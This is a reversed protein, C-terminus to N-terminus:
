TGLYRSLAEALPYDLPPMALSVLAEPPYWAFKEADHAQPVGEWRRCAYLLIVLPRQPAASNEVPPATTGSAFGVAELAACEVRLGLEEDLERIAAMELTEGPELKGGPFEWLGGHVAGFRRQQMLINRKADILAVATVLM